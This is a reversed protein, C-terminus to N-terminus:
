VEYTASCFAGEYVSSGASFLMVGYIVASGCVFEKSFAKSSAKCGSM